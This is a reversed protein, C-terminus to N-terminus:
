YTGCDLAGTASLGAVGNNQNKITGIYSGVRADTYYKNTTGEAVDDTNTVIQTVKAWSSANSPTTDVLMWVTQNDSQVAYDGLQVDNPYTLALRATSNAVPVRENTAIVPIQNAPIKGGSDLSAVGNAVGKDSVSLPASTTSYFYKMTGDLNKIVLRGTSAEIQIEQVVIDSTDTITGTSKARPLIRLTPM